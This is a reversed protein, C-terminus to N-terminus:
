LLRGRGINTILIYIAILFMIHAINHGALRVVNKRRAVLADVLLVGMLIGIFAFVVDRSVTPINFTPQITVDQSPPTLGGINPAPSPAAALVKSAAEEPVVVPQTPPTPAAQTLSISEAGFMQVVLTTQEGAITCNELAYGVDKYDPKLVNARHSPSAMWANVVSQSDSFNKALNEGAVTYNYGAQSIWYWPTTGAPSNHAWYDKSCMDSAKNAAAASLQANMVLPSLGAATRQANTDTFLEQAHIDTAYGLVDPAAKNAAKVGLNFLAFIFVYALLADIHLAKARHNNSQHPIFLHRLGTILSM